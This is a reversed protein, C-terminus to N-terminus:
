GAREEVTPAGRPDMELAATSTQGMPIFGTHRAEEVPARKQTLGFIGLAALILALYLFLTPAGYWDMLTGALAPGIAAGVGHVLLLASTADLVEDPKLFDNIHAVALGYITFALGGYFFAVAIFVAHAVQALVLLVLAFASAALSVGTLVSRRDIRDSIQGVPWQLVAGGLVTVSVLSATATQSYGMRFAYIAAMGMFASNLMGSAFAGAVGLPASRWLRAPDLSPTQVPTPEAVRTMVIPVLAISMLVSVVGFPIFSRVDGLLILYQGLAITVLTVMMYTGFIRGRTENTALTNLWSEIVMYLGVLCVGTVIRMVSWSVPDVILVHFVAMTSAVAAMAAFARVHGVRRIIAPCLWSGIVFGLFYASMIVGVTKNSFGEMGARVGLLTFLFGTGVLLIGTGLLLSFIRTLM